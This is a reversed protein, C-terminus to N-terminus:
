EKFEAKHGFETKSEDFRPMTQAFPNSGAAQTWQTGNMLQKSRAELTAKDRRVDASPKECLILGGEDIYSNDDSGFGIKPVPPFLEPHRDRPVPSWGARYKQNWNDKNQTGANDFTIAVWAYTMDKPIVEPPIYFRSQHTTRMASRSAATRSNSERTDSNRPKRGM